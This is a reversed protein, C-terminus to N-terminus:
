AAANASEPYRCNRQDAGAASARQWLFRLWAAVHDPHQPRSADATGTRLVPRDVSGSYVSRNLGLKLLRLRSTNIAFAICATILGLAVGAVFDWAVTVVFIVVMEFTNPASCPGGAELLWDVLMEVGLQLLFAAMMPVPVLGLARTGFGLMLLCVVGAM